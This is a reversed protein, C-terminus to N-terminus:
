RAVKVRAVIRKMSPTSDGCSTTKLSTLLPKIVYMVKYKSSSMKASEYHRSFRLVSKLNRELAVVNRDEDRIVWM